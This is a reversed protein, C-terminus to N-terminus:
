CNNGLCDKGTLLAVLTFVGSALYMEYTTVLEGKAKERKKNGPPGFHNFRHGSCHLKQSDLCFKPISLVVFLLVVSGFVVALILFIKANGGDKAM